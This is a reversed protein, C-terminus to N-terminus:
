MRASWASQRCCSGCASNRIAPTSGSGAKRMWDQDLGPLVVAGQPLRAIVALLEATAPISGTSGAAIVWGHPPAAQLRAALAQLAQIRRAAPNLPTKRRWSRPGNIACCM